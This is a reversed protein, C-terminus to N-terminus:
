DSRLLHEDHAHVPLQELRLFQRAPEHCTSHPIISEAVDICELSIQCAIARHDYLEVQADRLFLLLAAQELPEITGFRHFKEM